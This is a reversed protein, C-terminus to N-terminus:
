ERFNQVCCDTPRMSDWTEILKSKSQEHWLRVADLDKKSLAETGAMPSCDDITFSANIEATRVHFHPPPHENPYIELKLGRIKDVLKKFESVFLEGTDEDERINCNGHLLSELFEACDEISNLDESKLYFYLRDDKETNAQDKYIM